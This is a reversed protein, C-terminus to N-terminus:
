SLINDHAGIREWSFISFNYYVNGERKKRMGEWM